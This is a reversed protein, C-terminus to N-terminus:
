KLVNLTVDVKTVEGNVKDTAVTLQSTQGDKLMVTGVSSFHRFSPPAAAVKLAGTSMPEDAYVSSDDITLDIKFRGDDLTAAACDINTGVDKYQFSNAANATPLPVTSGMRLSTKGVNANVVLSYPLSSVKKDGQYRALVLQIRLPVPAKDDAHVPLGAALLLSALTAIM